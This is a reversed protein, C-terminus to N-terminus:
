RDNELPQNGALEEVIDCFREGISAWSYHEEVLIRANETLMTALKRDAAVRCVAEAFEPGSDAVLLHKGDVVELGEAGMTTSVVPVGAAMAELIKLRSGGGQRLPVVCVASESLVGRIDDVYGTFEIGACDALDSLDVGDVRGTVRLKADPLSTAIHSYIDSAFYRVADLNAGYTMAGNYILLNNKPDHQNQDYLSTDVGNPVVKVNRLVPAAALLMSRDLESVISIGAFKRCISSEWRAFKRWTLELRLRHFPCKANNAQRKLVGYECNHEDLLMPVDVSPMYEVVGITAAVIVDPSLTRAADSVSEKIAQDFTAVCSRPRNSFFGLLSDLRGPKFWQSKHLSVIKCVDALKASDSPDSDDQLLSILFVEHRASLAKLLNYTRIRAGNDPPYPYWASVFLIKM